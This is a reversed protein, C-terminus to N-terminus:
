STYFSDAHPIAQEQRRKQSRALALVGRDIIDTLHDRMSQRAAEPQGNKIAEFIKYHCSLVWRRREQSDVLLVEKGKSMKNLNLRVLRSLLHLRMVEASLLRNGAAKLVSLHFRIDQKVLDQILLDSDIDQELAAVLRQMEGYAEELDVIDEPGRNRAAQEASFSELALRLECTEKFQVFDIARVSAGLRPRIDVLGESQLQRLAERVPTRSVGSEAALRITKLRYGPPYVGDFINQRMFEYARQTHANVSTMEQATELM